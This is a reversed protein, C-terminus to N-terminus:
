EHMRAAYGPGLGWRSVNSSLPPYGKAHAHTRPPLIPAISRRALVWRHIV